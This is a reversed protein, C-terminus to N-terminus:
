LGVLRFPAILSKVGLPLEEISKGIVTAEPHRYYHAILLMAATRLADPVNSAAAGYGATWRISVADERSYISPWNQAPKLSVYSGRADSLLQYVTPSLTQEVNSADFYKVHTIASAVPVALRMPSAFSCFAQDWVQNILARGLIGSYGNMYSEVANIIQTLMTDHDSHTVRCWAKAEALTVFILATPAAFLTPKLM